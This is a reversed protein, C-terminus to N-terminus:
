GSVLAGLSLLRAVAAEFDPRSIGVPRITWAHASKPDLDHIGYQLQSWQAILVHQRRFITQGAVYILVRLELASLHKASYRAAYRAIHDFLVSAHAQTLEEIFPKDGPPSRAFRM